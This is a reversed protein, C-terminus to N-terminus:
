VVTVPLELLIASLSHLLVLNSLRKVSYPSVLSGLRITSRGCSVDFHHVHPGNHCSAELHMGYPCKIAYCRGM